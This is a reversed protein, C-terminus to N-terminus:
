AGISRLYDDLKQEIAQPQGLLGTLIEQLGVLREFAQKAHESDSDGLSSDLRGFADDVIQGAAGLLEAARRLDTQVRFVEDGLGDVGERSGGSEYLVSFLLPSMTGAPAAVEAHRLRHRRSYRRFYSSVQDPDHEQQRRAVEAMARDVRNRTDADLFSAAVDPDTLRLVTQGDEADVTLHDALVPLLELARSENPEGKGPVALRAAVEAWVDRVPVGRGFASALVQVLRVALGADDDPLQQLAEPLSRSTQPSRGFLASAPEPGAQPDHFPNAMMPQSWGFSGFWLQQERDSSWDAHVGHALDLGRVTANRPNWRLREEASQPGDQIVRAFARGFAGDSATGFSQSAALVGVWADEGIRQGDFGARVSAVRTASAITAGSHCTDVVFLLQRVGQELVVDVIEEPKVKDWQVEAARSDHVMLLLGGYPDLLGHGAWYLVMSRQGAAAAEVTRFLEARGFPSLVTQVACGRRVFRAALGTVDREVGPLESAAPADYRTVGIGLYIM